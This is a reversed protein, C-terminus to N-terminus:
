GPQDLAGALSGRANEPADSWVPRRLDDIDGVRQDGETDPHEEEPRTPKLTTSPLAAPPDSKELHIFRLAIPQSLAEAATATTSM